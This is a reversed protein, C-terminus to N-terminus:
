IDVRQSSKEFFVLRWRRSVHYPAFSPSYRDSRSRLLSVRFQLDLALVVLQQCDLDLWLCFMTSPRACIFCSYLSDNTECEVSTSELSPRALGLHHLSLLSRAIGFSV